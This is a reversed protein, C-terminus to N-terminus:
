SIISEVRDAYAKATTWCNADGGNLRAHSSWAMSDSSHLLEVVRPDRLATIKLGFGHLQLDPRRAKIAQLITVVTEPNTNRKCISGVGVYAGHTLLDGYLELCTVYEEPTYGQLVPMIPTACGLEDLADRLEVYRDVTMIQHSEVDLGTKELMFPECMYDQACAAVLTGCESWRAIQLAYADVSLTFDKHKNLQTFAGSDLIWENVKFDSKRTILRNISVFCRELNKTQSPQHYGPYFKM